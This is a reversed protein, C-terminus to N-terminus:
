RSRSAPSTRSAPQATKPAARRGLSQRRPQQAPIDAHRWRNPPLTLRYVTARGRGGGPTEVALYGAAAAKALARRVTRLSVQAAAAMAAASTLKGIRLTPKAPRTATAPREILWQEYRAGFWALVRAEADSFLGPADQAPSPGLRWAEVIAGIWQVQELRSAVRQPVPKPRRQTAERQPRDRAQAMQAM